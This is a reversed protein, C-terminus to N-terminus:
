RIFQEIQSLFIEAHAAIKKRIISGDTKQSHVTIEKLGKKVMDPHIHGFVGFNVVGMSERVLHALSSHYETPNVSALACGCLRGEFLSIGFHSLLIKSRLLSETYNIVEGTKKGESCEACENGDAILSRWGEPICKYIFSMYEPSPNIGTYILLDIDKDVPTSMLAEAARAFTYGFLFPSNEFQPTIMPYKLNPLLDIAWDASHRGEGCDDIAIVPAIKRFPLIEEPSSDRMDRIIVKAHDPVSEIISIDDNLFSPRSSCVLSVNYGHEKLLRCLFGMRQIHGSGYSGGWATLIIITHEDSM